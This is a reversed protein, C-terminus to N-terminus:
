ARACVCVPTGARASQKVALCLEVAKLGEEGSTLPKAGSEICHIFHAMELEFPDAGEFTETQVSRPDSRLVHRLTDANDFRGSVEAVGADTAVYLDEFSMGPCGVMGAGVCGIARSAFRVTYTACNIQPSREPALHSDGEASVNEVDGAVYRILDAAHAANELIPGGGDEESWFWEKESMGPHPYRHLMFRVAGLSGDILEKLRAVAPLFRKKHAIMLVVGASDCVDIMTQCNEVSNAMPKECLVHAGREAAAATIPGHSAPPTCISVADLEEAGFMAEVDPYGPVGAQERAERLIESNTDCVCALQAGAL